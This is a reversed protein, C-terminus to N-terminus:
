RERSSFSFRGFCARRQEVAAAGAAAAAAAMEETAAAASDTLAATREATAATRGEARVCCSAWSEGAAESASEATAATAAKKSTLFIKSVGDLVYSGALGM